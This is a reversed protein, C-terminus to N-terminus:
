SSRPPRAVSGFLWVARVETRGSLAAAVAEAAKRFDAHRRRAYDDQEDIWERLSRRPM